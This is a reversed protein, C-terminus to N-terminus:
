SKLSRGSLKGNERWTTRHPAVERGTRSAHYSISMVSSQSKQRYCAHEAFASRPVQTSRPHLAKTRHWLIISLRHQVLAASDKIDFVVANGGVEDLPSRHAPGHDSGAM